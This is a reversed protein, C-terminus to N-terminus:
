FNARRRSAHPPDTTTKEKRCPALANEIRALMAENVGELALQQQKLVDDTASKVMNAHKKEANKLSETLNACVRSTIKQVLDDQSLTNTEYGWLGSCLSNTCLAQGM